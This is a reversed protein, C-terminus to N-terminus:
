VALNVRIPGPINGASTRIIECDLYGNSGEYEDMLNALPDDDNDVESGDVDCIDNVQDFVSLEEPLQM